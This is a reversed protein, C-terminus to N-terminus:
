NYRIYAGVGRRGDKGRKTACYDCHEPNTNEVKCKLCIWFDSDGEDDAFRNTVKPLLSGHPRRNVLGIADASAAQSGRSLGRPQDRSNTYGAGIRNRGTHEDHRHLKGHEHVVEKHVILETEDNSDEMEFDQETDKEEKRYRVFTDDMDYSDYRNTRKEEGLRQEKHEAERVTYRDDTDSSDGPLPTLDESDRNTSQDISESNNRYMRTASGLRGSSASNGRQKYNVTKKKLMILSARPDHQSEVNPLATESKTHDRGESIASLRSRPTDSGSEASDARPSPKLSKSGRAFPNNSKTQVPALKGNPSETIDSSYKPMVPTSPNSISKRNTETNKKSVIRPPTKSVIPQYRNRSPANDAWKSLIEDDADKRDATSYMPSIDNQQNRINLKQQIEDEIDGKGHLALSSRSVAIAMEKKLSTMVGSDDLGIGGTNNLSGYSDEMDEERLFKCQLLEKATPRDLENKRFCMELCQQADPTIDRNHPPPGENWSSLLLHLQVLGKLNRDKWPPSSTLMQIMTCGVAWIDGKRGYKSNPLVEPAMFYPTGKITTTEQTKDFSLRTSAGFDALKVTGNDHVLINGGKIDRDISDSILSSFQLAFFVVTRLGISLETKM